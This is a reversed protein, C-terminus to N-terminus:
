ERLEPPVFPLGLGAFVGVEDRADPLEGLADVFSASGTARVLATGFSEPSAVVLEIPVGEVTVGLARDEGRDLVSVIQPLTAFRDLAAPDDSVVAFRNSVDCWRRPDGAAVGGLAGAISEALERARNITLWRKPRPERERALAERLMAETKPGIGPVDLLRGADIAARLEDATRVGLARGIEVARKPGLGLFRGLGVLEPEVEGELEKAREIEGTRVLEELVGAIGPGIGALEQVRGDAVLQAVPAPLPRILDAARRYARVTYYGSGALDLLAAYRELADAIAGNDPSLSRAVINTTGKLGSPL